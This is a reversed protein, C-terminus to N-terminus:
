QGCGSGGGGGPATGAEGQNVNGIGFEISDYSGTYKFVNDMGQTAAEIIVM